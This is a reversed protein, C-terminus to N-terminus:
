HLEILWQTSYVLLECHVCVCVCVRVDVILFGGNRYM